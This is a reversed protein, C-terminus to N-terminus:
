LELFSHYVSAVQNAGAGVITDSKAVEGDIWITVMLKSDSHLLNANASFNLQSQSENVFFEDSKWNFGTPNFINQQATGVQTVVTKFASFETPPPSAPGGDIIKAEFQVLHQLDEEDDDKKCSNVVTIVSFLVVFLSSLRLLSKLNYFQKM